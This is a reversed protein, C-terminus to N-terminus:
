YTGHQWLTIGTNVVGRLYAKYRALHIWDMCKYGTLRCNVKFDCKWKSGPRGRLMSGHPKEVVLNKTSGDMIFTGM